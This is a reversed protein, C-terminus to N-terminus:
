IKNADVMSTERIDENAQMLEKIIESPVLAVVNGVGVQAQQRIVRAVNVGVYNAGIYSIGINANVCVGVNAGDSASTCAGAVLISTQRRRWAQLVIGCRCHATRNNTTMKEHM